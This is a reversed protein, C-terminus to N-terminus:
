RHIEAPTRERDYSLRILPATEGTPMARVRTAAWAAEGADRVQAPMLVQWVNAGRGGAHRGYVGHGQGFPVSLTDPRASPQLLAPVKIRGVPSELWVWESDRIGLRAATRPNIEVWSGWVVSSMPDPLEQMWPLDASRGMGVGLPAFPQLYLPYAAPDADQSALQAASAVSALDASSAPRAHEADIWVGEELFRDWFGDVGDSDFSGRGVQAKQLYNRLYQRFDGATGPSGALSLLIDASDRAEYLPRIAPQTLTLVRSGATIEPQTVDWRELSSQDPLVLDALSSSDDMVTAFAVIFPIRELKQRLGMAAPVSYVPDADLLFLARISEASALFDEAWYRSAPVDSAEKLSTSSWNVGGPKGIGGVLANLSQTALASFLGHEHALATGGALALAPRYRAFERAVRELRKLPIDAAEAAREPSYNALVWSRYGDFNRVQSEVASRDFLEEKLIVHAMALAVMAETGPRAPLWEDANAATLSFRSEVQVFKGREGPRGQRLRTLGLGYRVPSTHSELINAGFSVVYRTKEFDHQELEARGFMRRNAERLTPTGPPEDLYCRTSGAAALLEKLLQRRPGSVSGCIAALGAGAEALKGKLLATAEEWSVSEYKGSGRPGSLRLPTRIRDPHYAVQPVAQGRACLRGCNIPSKPNGEIKKAQIVMQRTEQGDRLQRVEGAMTRVLTSCGASCLSCTSATWKDVGPIIQEEPVLLPILADEKGGCGSLTVAVGAGLAASKLFDRRDM